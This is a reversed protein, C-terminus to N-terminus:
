REAVSIWAPMPLQAGAPLLWRGEEVPAFGANAFVSASPENRGSPVFRGVLPQGACVRVIYALMAQEMGFGMARCSMVFSEILFEGETLRLVAVCVLGLAGFKDSLDGVIVRADDRRLLDELEHKAYRITTTNFQNTRQVLEAVRDLDTKSASGITAKLELTRMLAPYDPGSRVTQQRSAQQRYLQKRQRAEETERTNPMLLLRGLAVWASPKTADLTTIEPVQQRLLEREAPNDDLLLFSDIGLNLDAAIERASQAKLNWNIKLSVFDDATLLMEDWRINKEDNKSVAALLIGLESLKKLLLQRDRHHEVPGDAMVGNWLTNDFDVLILKTKRLRAIDSVIAGYEISALREFDILHFQAHRFMRQPFLVRSASRLGRAETLANEDILFCNDTARVIRSIETNVLHLADQQARTLPSLGPLRSRWRSLPLGSANHLLLPVDSLERIQSVHSAVYQSIAEVLASKEAATHKGADEMLSRYLPIGKYTLYSTAIVDVKSTRIAASIGDQDIDAGMLASLYYYRVDLDIGQGAMQDILFVQIGAMVCDGVMLMRLNTREGTPLTRLPRHLETLWDAFRQRLDSSVQNLLAREHAPVLTAFYAQLSEQGERHPAYRRWEFLYQDRFLQEGTRAYQVLLGLLPLFFDRTVAAQKPSASFEGPFAAIIAPSFWDVYWAAVIPQRNRWLEGALKHFNISASM